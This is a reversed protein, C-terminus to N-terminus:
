FWSEPIVVIDGPQMEINASMDGKNVLDTLRLNYTEQGNSIQRVLKSRNGDAFESLGGVEIVVDLLTLDDRYTLAQPEVAQGVVRIQQTFTGIFETVTVTVVPQKLYDGFATELDRALRTTTKGVAQMDEVLPTSIKGDPRVPVEASVDPNRWVFIKLTDGPGIIYNSPTVPATDANLPTGPTTSCGGTLLAIAWLILIGAGAFARTRAAYVRSFSHNITRM